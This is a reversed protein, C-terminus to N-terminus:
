TSGVLEVAHTFKSPVLRIEVLGEPVDVFKLPMWPRQDWARNVRTASDEVMHDLSTM